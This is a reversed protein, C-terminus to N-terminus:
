DALNMKELMANFGPHGHLPRLWVDLKMNPLGPDRVAYARELWEIATDLEGWSAFVQAQQYSAADGYRDLLEQQANIAAEINGLRHEITELGTLRAFAVPEKKAFELAEADRTDLYLIEAMNANAFNATPDEALLNKALAEAEELHGAVSLTVAYDNKLRPNLPDRALLDQYANLLHLYQCISKEARAKQRTHM